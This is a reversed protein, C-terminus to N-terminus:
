RRVSHVTLPLTVGAAPATTMACVLGRLDEHRESREAEHTTGDEIGFVPQSQPAGM